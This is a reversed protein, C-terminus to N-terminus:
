KKVKPYSQLFEYLKSVEEKNLKIIPSVIEDGIRMVIWFKGDPIFADGIEITKKKNKDDKLVVM